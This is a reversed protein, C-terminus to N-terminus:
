LSLYKAIIYEPRDLYEKIDLLNIMDLIYDYNYTYGSFYAKLMKKYEHIIKRKLPSM